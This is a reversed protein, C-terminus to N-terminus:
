VQQCLNAVFFPQYIPIKLSAKPSVTRSVNSPYTFDRLSRKFHAGNNNTNMSSVNRAPKTFLMKVFPASIRAPFAVTSFYKVPFRALTIAMSSIAAKNANTTLLVHFPM